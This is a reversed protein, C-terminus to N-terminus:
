IKESIGGTAYAVRFTFTPQPLRVPVVARVLVKIARNSGVYSAANTPLEATLNMTGTTHVAFSKVYDFQKTVQNYFYVMAATGPATTSADLTVSGASVKSGVFPSRFEIIAGGVGGVGRMPMSSFDYGKGLGRTTISAVSGSVFRGSQLTISVPKIPKQLTAAVAVVNKFQNIRGFGFIEKPGISDCSAEFIDQIRQAPLKPNMSWMLAISGNAVPTAMSTGSAAGYGGDSTTSLVNVGPAFVHIGRGYASFDAKKDNEDSAGVVIVDKHSFGSLDRNDNGAAYLYLSGKAKIYAGTTQVADGDVGTYSTSITKAGHDAAWRAGDLIDDFSAGGSPDNSVRVPMIRFNWGMGSLGVGNNGIASGDGAVHTGHGNVDSVEGGDVQAKRDVSNYGPVLNAKLDEHDLRVGTDTFATIFTASGKWLNWAEFSKTIRHHYQNGVMPDNPAVQPYLRWNPEAYQFLSTNLLSQSYDNESKGAPVKVVYEDTAPVYKSGRVVLNRAQLRKADAEAATAGRRILEAKSLPRVILQGTFERVGVVQNFLARQAPALV